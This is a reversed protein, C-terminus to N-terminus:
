MGCILSLMCYKDKETESTRSLMLNELDMWEALSASTGEKEHTFLM